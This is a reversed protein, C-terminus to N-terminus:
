EVVLPPTPLLISLRASLLYKIKQAHGKLYAESNTHVESAWGAYTPTCTPRPLIVSVHSVEISSFRTVVVTGSGALLNGLRDTAIGMLIDKCKEFFTSNKDKKLLLIYADTNSKYHKFNKTTEYYKYM